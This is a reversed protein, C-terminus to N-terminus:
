RNRAKDILINRDENDNIIHMKRHCNPCLAVTNYITDVGGEALWTVHHTELYPNKHKDVFPAPHGCLECIGKTSQKIYESVFVNRIFETSTVSRTSVTSSEYESAKKKLEEKSLHSIKKVKALYNSELVRQEIPKPTIIRLPFMWVLRNNGDLDSQIEQYPNGCLEVLGQYIYKTPEFVEFLYIAVGNINSEALTKNQQSTLLQDGKLGMGTYHLTNDQWDDDYPPKTHDSIIVLSNTKKSRRMGGMIGCAFETRLQNNTVESGISFSPIFGSTAAQSKSNEKNSM